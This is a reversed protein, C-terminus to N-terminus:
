VALKSELKAKLQLGLPVTVFDATAGGCGCAEDFTGLLAHCTDCYKQLQPHQDPYLTLFFKKLQYVTKRVRAGPPLFM